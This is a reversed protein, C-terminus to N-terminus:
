FTSLQIKTFDAFYKGDIKIVKPNILGDLYNNLLDFLLIEKTSISIVFLDDGCLIPNCIKYDPDFVINYDDAEIVYIVICGAFVLIVYDDNYNLLKIFNAAECKTITDIKYKDIEIIHTISLLLNASDYIFYKGNIFIFDMITYGHKFLVKNFRFISREGIYILEDNVYISYKPIHIPNYTKITHSNLDITSILPGDRLVYNDCNKSIIIDSDKHDIHIIKNSKWNYIMMGYIEEYIVIKDQHLNADTINLFKPIHTDDIIEFKDNFTLIYKDTVCILSPKHYENLIDILLVENFINELEIIFKNM